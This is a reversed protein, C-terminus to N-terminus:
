ITTMYPLFGISVFPLAAITFRVFKGTGSDRSYDTFHNNTHNWHSWKKPSKSSTMSKHSFKHLYFILPLWSQIIWGFTFSLMFVQNPEKYTTCVSSVNSM